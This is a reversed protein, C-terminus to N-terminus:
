RFRTTIYLLRNNACNSQTHRGRLVRLRFSCAGNDRSATKPSEQAYGLTTGGVLVIAADPWEGAVASIIAAVVLILVLPSKFQNWLLGAASAQGVTKLSNPGYLLLRREAEDQGLGNRSAHLAELLRDTAVSRYNAVAPDGDNRTARPNGIFLRSWFTVCLRRTPKGLVVPRLHLRGAIPFRIAVPPQVLRFRGATTM